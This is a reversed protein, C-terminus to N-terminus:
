RDIAVVIGMNHSKWVCDIYQFGAQKLDRQTDRLTGPKDGLRRDFYIQRAKVQDFTRDIELESKIQETMWTIWNDFEWGSIVPSEGTFRDGNIFLGGEDLVQRIQTYLRIKNEHEIHHLSHCSVVADFESSGLGDPIGTNLNYKIIKVNNNSSFREEALRLMEESYDVMCVSALPRLELIEATVDGWGCGIDLVRPQGSVFETALRAVISLTDGRGPITVDAIRIQHNVIEKSNWEEKRSM